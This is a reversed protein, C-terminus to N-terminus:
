KQKCCKKKKDKDLDKDKFFCVNEIRINKEEPKQTNTNSKKAELM